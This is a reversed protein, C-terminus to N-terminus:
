GASSASYVNSYIGREPQLGGAQYRAIALVTALGDSVVIADRADPNWGAEVDDATLARGNRLRSVAEPKIKVQPLFSLATEISVVHQAVGTSDLEELTVASPLRFDGIRTRVLSQLAAGTGLEEGVDRALARLYTGKSVTARLRLVPPAFDLLVLEKIWVSRPQHAVPRGQRAVQYSRRGGVKLASFAPPVQKIQGQFRAIVEALQERDINRVPREELLRGMVDDTDTRVGLRVEAEYEKERAQLYDAIKTAAGILVLLVGQALPDLTGAHGIKEGQLLPKLRRIVDYSTMGRPKNVNLIGRLATELAVRM